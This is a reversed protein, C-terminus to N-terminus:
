LNDGAYSKNATNSVPMAFLSSIALVMNFDENLMEVMNQTYFFPDVVIMNNSPIQPTEKILKNSVALMNEPKAQVSTFVLYTSDTVEVLNAMLGDPIINADVISNYEFEKDLAQVFPDFMQEKFGYTKGSKKIM